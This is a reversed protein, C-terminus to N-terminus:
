GGAGGGGMAKSLLTEVPSGPQPAQSLEGYGQLLAQQQAQQEMQQQMQQQQMAREERVAMVEKVEKICSQPMGRNEVVKRVVLDSDIIDVVEPYIQAIMGMDQLSQLIQNTKVAQQARVLPSIYQIDLKANVLEEPMPPLKGRQKQMLEFGREFLRNFNEQQQNILIPALLFSKEAALQQVETATPAGKATNMTRNHIMLFLDVFFANNIDKQASQMLDWSLKHDGAVQLPKFDEVSTIGDKRFLNIAGPSYNLRSVLGRDPMLMPPLNSLQGSQTMLKKMENVMLVDALAVTGPSTSYPSRGDSYARTVIYPLSGFGGESILHEEEPEFYFSVYPLKNNGIINEYGPSKKYVAHVVRLKENVNCNKNNLYQQVTDSLNEKGFLELAQQITLVMERFVVNVRGTYDNTVFIEDIPVDRYYTGIDESYGVYMAQIGYMGIHKYSSVQQTYFNKSIFDKIFVKEVEELWLAVPRWRSLDEGGSADDVKFTFWQDSPPSVGSLMGSSFVQIAQRATNDIDRIDRHLSLYAENNISASGGFMNMRESEFIAVKGWVDDYPKRQAKMESFSANLKQVLERARGM